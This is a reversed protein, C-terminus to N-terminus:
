PNWAFGFTDCNGNFLEIDGEQGGVEFSQVNSEFAIKANGFGLVECMEQDAFGWGVVEDTPNYFECGFRLGEAGALSIGPWYRFGRAESNFGRVDMLSEGDNPGGIIEVFVRTGLAHTHPLLYYIELDLPSGSVTEYTDALPCEATWRSHAKPPIALEEFDLHFPAVAIEAEEEPVTYLTMVSNGDKPEETLNLLHVDSIIRANAPIKIVAGAPLKQVERPAQTSQVYLVGGLLAAQLQEPCHDNSCYGYDACPWIEDDPGEFNGEPVFMWNSHHSHEDQVFEVASVYLPEANGVNWSRCMNTIEQGGETHTMPFAHVIKTGPIDICASDNDASAYQGAPCPTCGPGFEGVTCIMQDVLCAASLEASCTAEVPDPDPDSESSSCATFCFIVSFVCLYRFMSEGM